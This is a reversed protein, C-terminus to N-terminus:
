ISIQLSPRIIITRLLLVTGSGRYVMADPRVMSSSNDFIVAYILKKTQSCYFINVVYIIIISPRYLKIFLKENACHYRIIESEGFRAVGELEM